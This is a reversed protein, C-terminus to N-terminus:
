NARRRDGAGRYEDEVDIRWLPEFMPTEEYSGAQKWEQRVATSHAGHAKKAKCEVSGKGGQDPACPIAPGAGSVAARVRERFVQLFLGTYCEKEPTFGVAGM